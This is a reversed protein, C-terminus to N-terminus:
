LAGPGRRRLDLQPDAGSEGTEASGSAPLLRRGKGLGRFEQVPRGTHEPDVNMYERAKEFSGEDVANLSLNVYALAFEGDYEVAKSFSKNSSDLDGKDMFDRGKFFEILAPISKTTFQGVRVQLDDELEASTLGLSKRAWLSIRDCAGLLEEEALNEFSTREVAAKQRSDILRLDLRYGDRHKMLSGLLFYDVRARVAIEDLARQPYAGRTYDNDDGLVEALTERQILRLFSPQELAAGILNPLGRCWTDDTPDGSINEFTM